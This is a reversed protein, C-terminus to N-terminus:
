KKPLALGKAPDAVVRYEVGQGPSGSGSGRYEPPLWKAIRFLPKAGEREKVGFIPRNEPELVWYSNWHGRVLHRVPAKRGTESVESSAGSGGSSGGSAGKSLNVLIYPRRSYHRDFKSGKKGGKDPAVPAIDQGQLQGHELTLFLNFVLQWIRNEGFEAYMPMQALVDGSRIDFNGRSYAIKQFAENDMIGFMRWKVGPVDEALLISTVKVPLPLNRSKTEIFQGEPLIILACSFPLKPLRSQLLEIPIETEILAHYAEADLKWVNRHLDALALMHLLAYTASGDESTPDGGLHRHLFPVIGQLDRIGTDVMWTKLLKKAYAFEKVEDSHDLITKKLAEGRSARRAAEQNALALLQLLPLSVAM